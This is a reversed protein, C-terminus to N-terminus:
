FAKEILAHAIYLKPEFIAVWTWIDLLRALGLIASFVGGVVCFIMLAIKEPDDGDSAAWLKRTIWGCAIACVVLAVGHVLRQAGQMRVVSLAADIVDPAYQKTISELANLYQAAKDTVFSELTQEAVQEKSM